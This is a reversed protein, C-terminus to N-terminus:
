FYDVIINYFYFRNKDIIKDYIFYENIDNKAEKEGLLGKIFGKLAM